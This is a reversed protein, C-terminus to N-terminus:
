SKSYKARLKPKEIKGSPNRPIEDFIVRRPRKYRPLNEECFAVMEQESVSEGPATQIVATVL